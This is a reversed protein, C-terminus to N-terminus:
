SAHFGGCLISISFLELFCCILFLGISCSEWILLVINENSNKKFYRIIYLIIKIIFLLFWIGLLTPLVKLILYENVMDNKRFAVFLTIITTVIPIFFGFMVKCCILVKDYKKKKKKNVKLM